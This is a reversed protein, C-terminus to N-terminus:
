DIPPHRFSWDRPKKYIMVLLYKSIQDLSTWALHVDSFFQSNSLFIDTNAKNGFDWKKELGDLSLLTLFSCSQDQFLVGLVQVIDHTVFAADQVDERCSYGCRHAEGVGTLQKKERRREMREDGHM